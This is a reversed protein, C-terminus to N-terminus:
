KTGWLYKQALEKLAQTTLPTPTKGPPLISGGNCIDEIIHAQAAGVGLMAVVIAAAMTKFKMRRICMTNSSISM